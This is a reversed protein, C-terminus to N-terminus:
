PQPPQKPKRRRMMVAGAGIVVVAVIVGGVILLTNDGAAPAGRVTFTGKMVSPGHLNCFYQHTGASNATYTFTVGTTASEFVGSEEDGGDKAGNANLDIVLTHPIADQAFLTFTIVDGQDVAIAPGPSTINSPGYGWGTTMNGYLTIPVAKAPKPQSGGTVALTSTAFASAVLMLGLTVLLWTGPFNAM